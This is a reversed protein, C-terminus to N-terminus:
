CFRSPGHIVAPSLLWTTHWLTETLRRAIKQKPWWKKPKLGEIFIQKTDNQNFAPLTIVIPRQSYINEQRIIDAYLTTFLVFLRSWAADMLSCLHSRMDEVLEAGSLQELKSLEDVILIAPKDADCITELVAIQDIYNMNLENNTLALDFDKCFTEFMTTAASQRFLLRTIVPLDFKGAALWKKDYENVSTNGDFSIALM